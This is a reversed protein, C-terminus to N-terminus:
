RVLFMLFPLVIRASEKLSWSPVISFPVLCHRASASLEWCADAVACWGFSFDDLAIVSKDAGVVEFVAPISLALTEPMSGIERLEQSDQLALLSFLVEASTVVATCLMVM